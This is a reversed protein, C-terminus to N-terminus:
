NPSSPSLLAQPDSISAANSGNGGLIEIYERGGRVTRVYAGWPHGMPQVVTGEVRFTTVKGLIRNNSQLAVAVDHSALGSATLKEFEGRSVLNFVREATMKADSRGRWSLVVPLCILGLVMGILIVAITM